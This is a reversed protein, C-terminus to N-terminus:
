YIVWLSVKGDKSGAALWHTEKTKQERRQKATIVPTPLAPILSSIGTNDNKLVSVSGDMGIEQGASEIEVGDLSGTREVEVSTEPIVSEGKFAPNKSDQPQEATGATDDLINAFTVAYCGEKHWKLVALEAM